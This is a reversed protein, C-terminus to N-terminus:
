SNSDERVIVCTQNDELMPEFEFGIRPLRRKRENKKPLCPSLNLPFGPKEMAKKHKEM